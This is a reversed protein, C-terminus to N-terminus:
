DRLAHEGPPPPLPAVEREFFTAIDEGAEYLYRTLGTIRAVTGPHTVKVGGNPEGSDTYLIHYAVSPGLTILEPLESEAELDRVLNAPVVRILEGCEASVKLSHLEWQLYPSLPQKVVRVRHMRIALNAAKALLEPASHRREEILELARTWDGRAFAEWRPAGPQRFHQRRELKWSEQGAISSQVARFDAKYDPQALYEGVLESARIPEHM